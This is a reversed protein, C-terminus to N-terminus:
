NFFNIAAIPFLIPLGVGYLMTVYVILLSNAFKYHTTYEPGMHIAKYYGM